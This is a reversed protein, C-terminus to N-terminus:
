IKNIKLVQFCECYKGKGTMIGRYRNLGKVAEFIHAKEWATLRRQEDYGKIIAALLKFNLKNYFASV